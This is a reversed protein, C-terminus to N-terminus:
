QQSRFHIVGFLVSCPVNVPFEEQAGMVVPIADDNLAHCSAFVECGGSLLRTVQIGAEVPELCLERRIQQFEKAGGGDCVRNM